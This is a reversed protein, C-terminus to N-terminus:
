VAAVAPNILRYARSKVNPIRVLTGGPLAYRVAARPGRGAVVIFRDVLMGNSLELPIDFIITQGPRPTPKANTVERAALAARCRERWDIAHPYDTPTLLDLIDKPCDAEYPGVTEDMDKFGFTYGDSARPNYNVLCVVAFVITDGDAAVREVAAYYVKMRVLASALVTCRRDENSYTFQNDLYSRPSDYGSLGRMYLWGM